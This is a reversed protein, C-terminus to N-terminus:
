LVNGLDVGGLNLLNGTVQRKKKLKLIDDNNGDSNAVNNLGLLQRKKSRLLSGSDGDNNGVNSLDVVPNGNSGAVSDNNLDNNLINSLGLEQRKKLKLLRLDYERKRHRETRSAEAYQMM